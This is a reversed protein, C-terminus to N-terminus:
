NSVCEHKGTRNLIKIFYSYSFTTPHANCMWEQLVLTVCAEGPTAHAINIGLHVAFPDSQLREIIATQNQADSTNM